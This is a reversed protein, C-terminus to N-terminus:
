QCSLARGDRSCDYAFRVEPPAVTASQVLFALGKVGDIENNFCRVVYGLQQQTRLAAYFARNMMQSLLTLLVWVDGQDTGVQFYVETVSNTEVTNATVYQQLAGGLPVKRVMRTPRREAALPQSPLALQLQQVVKEAQMPSVNGCVLAEIDIETLFRRQFRRLDDLTVSAAAAELQENTLMPTSLALNRYYKALEVPEQKPLEAFYRQLGDRCREFAFPELPVQRPVFHKRLTDM